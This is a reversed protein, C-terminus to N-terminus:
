LRAAATAGLSPGAFMIKPSHQITKLTFSSQCDGELARVKNISELILYLRGLRRGPQDALPRIPPWAFMKKKSNQIEKGDSLANELVTVYM